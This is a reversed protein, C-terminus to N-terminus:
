KKETNTNVYFATLRKIWAIAKNYDTLAEVQKLEYDFLQQRVRLIDTMTSNSTSFTKIQIDLTKKTLQRQNEFLKM